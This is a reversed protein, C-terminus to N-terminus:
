KVALQVSHSTPDAAATFGLAWTGSTLPKTSLNLIYGGTGGLSADYRFDSDPNANGSDDVTGLVNDGIRTLGTVHVVIAPSSVSRGVADCLQLKIPVTSGLKKALTQDYLACVGYGVAYTVSRRAVNGVADAAEVSFTKSGVSATDSGSGNTVPGTCAAVGSGGDECRYAAAVAQGLLYTAGDAPTAVTVTPAEEDVENGGIPGANTCNGANDCVRQTDTEADATQTGAPVHTSLSFSADAPDALGSGDDSATCSISVDSAHWQGDAAGCQITPADIDVPVPPSDFGDCIQVLSNFNSNSSGDDFRHHEQIVYLCGDPGVQSLDGPFGGSAFETVVAPQAYGNPFDLRWITGDLNDTVIFQPAQGHFAIGNPGGPVAISQLLAGDRAIVDVSGTLPQSNPDLPDEAVFLVSGTPDFVIGEVPRGVTATSFVGSSGGPPATLIAGDDGAYVLSGTRPDTTIGQGNGGQGFHALDMGTNPDIRLVGHQTNAYIFGDPNNSLGGDRRHTSVYACTSPVIGTARHGFSGGGVPTVTDAPLRQVFDTNNCLWPDGNPAFAVGGWVTAEYDYFNDTFGPAIWLFQNTAWGSPPVVAAVAAALTLLVLARRM